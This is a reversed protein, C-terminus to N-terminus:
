KMHRKYKHLTNCCVNIKKLFDKMQIEDSAPIHRSCNESFAFLRRHLGSYKLHTNMMVRAAQCLHEESCGASPIVDKVFQNLIESSSKKLVMQVDCKIEQLVKNKATQLGTVAVITLVLLMLTRM